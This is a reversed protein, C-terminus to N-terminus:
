LKNSLFFVLCPTLPQPPYCVKIDNGNFFNLTSFLLHQGDYWHINPDEFLEPNLSMVREFVLM